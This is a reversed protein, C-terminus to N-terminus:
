PVVEEEGVAAQHLEDPGVLGPVGNTISLGQERSGASKEGSTCKYAYVVRLSYTGDELGTVDLNFSASSAQNQALVLRQRGLRRQRKGVVSRVEPQLLVVCDPQTSTAWTSLELGTTKGQSVIAEPSIFVQVAREEGRM